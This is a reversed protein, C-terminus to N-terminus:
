PYYPNPKFLLTILDILWGIGLLGGTCLYVIGLLIKGEYFIHVGLIGLFLCLFFAVWKNKAKVSPGSATVTNTNTNTNNIIITPPQPAAQNASATTVSIDQDQSMPTGCSPCFKGTSETGCKPCLM